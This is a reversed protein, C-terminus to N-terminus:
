HSRPIPFGNPHQSQPPVLPPSMWHITSKFWCFTLFFIQKEDKSTRQPILLLLLLLQNVLAPLLKQTMGCHKKRFIFFLLFSPNFKYFLVRLQEVGFHKLIEFAIKVYQLRYCGQSSLYSDNSSYCALTTHIFQTKM